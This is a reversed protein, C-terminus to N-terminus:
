VQLVKGVYRVTKGVYRENYRFPDDYPITVAQAKRSALDQQAAIEEPKPVKVVAGLEVTPDSVRVGVGTEGVSVTLTFTKGGVTIPVLYDDNAHAPAGAVVVLFLAIILAWIQHFQLLSRSRAAAVFM